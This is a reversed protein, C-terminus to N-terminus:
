SSAGKKGGGLLGGLLGKSGDKKAKAGMMDDALHHALQHLSKTLPSGPAITDLMKGANSAATVSKHDEPLTFDIKAQAGKAFSAEDVAAPRQPGVRAAVLTVRATCGLAKLMTRVRLTDRIGVLTMETVLVIDQAIALVRKQSSLLHRPLDVIIVNFNARLEKLLAAVASSDVTLIDDLHEEAGLISFRESAAVLASAVMLSDVRQPSSIVDRLGRGPELDLALASAGFQLDLDLLAVKQKMEHAIIWGANVAITSAGVGGRAGLVVITKTEKAGSADTKGHHSAQTVAQTLMDPTLPKVLYDAMGAALINRYLGVDNATGVAILRSAPGCLSVLRAAIQVPQEQGDIDVFALRPPADSELMTTFLDAGGHQITSAPFGQREAWEKLTATSTDDTVFAM